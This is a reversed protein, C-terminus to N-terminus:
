TAEEVLEILDKVEILDEKGLNKVAEDLNSLCFPCATVLIEAGKDLAEKVKIDGLRAKGDDFWMRGGGGECCLAEEKSKDFEVLEIGPIHEIIKRPEEYIGNRRGLFCADQYIVKKKIKKLFTVKGKEILDLVFQSHHYAKLKGRYKHIFVQYCHPSITVIEEIGYRHFLKENSEALLEFLGMEGMEYVENGCCNEERGLV